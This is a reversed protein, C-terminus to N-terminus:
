SDIQMAWQNPIKGYQIGTITNYFREALSVEAEHPIAIVRDEYHIEGVPTVVAATGAGFM